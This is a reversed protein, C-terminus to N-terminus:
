AIRRMYRFVLVGTGLNFLAAIFVASQMGGYAFLLLATAFCASASGLTNIFYLTGVSQGVHRYHKYLYAVLAPLTAGMLMTPMILLLFIVLTVVTQSSNLTLAGVNKILPVSLSGFVGIALEVVLFLTPIRNPFKESLYGGGLAGVGLGLMFISVIITISEINIGYISYLLRQWVIQYILAAFGSFFFLVALWEKSAFFATRRTKDASAALAVGKLALFALLVLPGLKEAVRVGFAGLALALLPVYSLVDWRLFAARASDSMGSRRAVTDTIRRLLYFASPGLLAGVGVRMAVMTGDVAADPRSALLNLQLSIGCVAGIVVLLLNLM